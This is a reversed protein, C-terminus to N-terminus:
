AHGWLTSTRESLDSKYAGWGSRTAAETRQADGPSHPRLTPPRRTRPPSGPRASPDDFVWCEFESLVFNQTSSLMPSAFTASAESRGHLLDKEIYFAFSSGGGMALCEADSFMFFPDGKAEAWGFVELGPDEGEDVDVEDGSAAEDSMGESSEAESAAALGDGQQSTEAAGATTGEADDFPAPAEAEREIEALIADLAETASTVVNRNSQMKRALREDRAKKQAKFKELRRLAEDVLVKAAAEM